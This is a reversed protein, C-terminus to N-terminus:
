DISRTRRSVAATDLEQKVKNLENRLAFFHPELDGEQELMFNLLLNLMTRNLNVTVNGSFHSVNFAPPRFSPKM